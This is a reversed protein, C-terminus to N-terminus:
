VTTFPIWSDRDANQQNALFRFNHAFSFVLIHDESSQQVFRLVREEIDLANESVFAEIEALHQEKGIDGLDPVNQLIRELFPTFLDLAEQRLTGGPKVAVLLATVIEETQRAACQKGRAIQVLMKVGFRVFIDFVKETDGLVLLAVIMIARLIYASGHPVEEFGKLLLQFISRPGNEREEQLRGLLDIAWEMAFACFLLFLPRTFDTGRQFLLALPVRSLSALLLARVLFHHRNAAVTCALLGRTLALPFVQSNLLVLPLILNPASLASAVTGEVSLCPLLYALPIRHDSIFGVIARATDGDMEAEVGDPLRIGTEALEPIANGAPYVTSGLTLSGSFTLLLPTPVSKVM